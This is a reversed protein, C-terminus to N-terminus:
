LLLEFFKDGTYYAVAIEADSGVQTIYSETGYRSDFKGCLDILPEVDLEIGLLEYPTSVQLGDLILYQFLHQITIPIRFCGCGLVRRGFRGTGRQTESLRTDIELAHLVRRGRQIIDRHAGTQRQLYGILLQTRSHLLHRSVVGFEKDM